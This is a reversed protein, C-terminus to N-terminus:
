DGSNISLEIPLNMIGKKEYLPNIIENAPIVDFTFGDEDYFLTAPLPEMTFIHLFLRYRGTEFFCPFFLRICSVRDKQIKVPLSYWDVLRLGMKGYIILHITVNLSRTSSLNVCIGAKETNKFIDRSTNSEDIIKVEQVFFYDAFLPKHYKRTSAGGPFMISNYYSLVKEVSGDKLIKGNDLLVARNCIKAIMEQNHSVFLIIKEKTKLLEEMKKMSEEQFKVDGVALVEDILLIDANVFFATSLALRLWMGSSYFKAPMDILDGLGSFDIIKNIIYTDPKIGLLQSYFYINERGTLEGHFGTGIELFTAIRGRITIYGRTPYTIGGALKLLTTKGAGNRGIIGVIEGGNFQVSVDKIAWIESKESNKKIINKMFDIFTEYSIYQGKKLYKKSVNHFTIQPAKM